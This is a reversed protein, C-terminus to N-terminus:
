TRIEGRSIVAASAHTDAAGSADATHGDTRGDRWGPLSGSHRRDSPGGARRAAHSGNRGGVGDGRGGAGDPRVHSALGAEEHVLSRVVSLAVGHIATARGGRTARGDTRGDSAPDPAHMAKSENQPLSSESARRALSSVHAM